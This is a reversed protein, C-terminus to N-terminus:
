SILLDLLSSGVVETIIIDFPCLMRQQCSVLSFFRVPKFSLRNILYDEDGGGTATELLTVGDSGTERNTFDRRLVDNQGVGPGGVSDTSGGESDFSSSLLFPM